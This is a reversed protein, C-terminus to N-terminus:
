SHRLCLHFPRIEGHSNGAVVALLLLDDVYLRPRSKPGHGMLGNLTQFALPLKVHHNRVRNDITREKRQLVSALKVKVDEHCPAVTTREPAMCISRGMWLMRLM